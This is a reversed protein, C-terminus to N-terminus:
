NSGFFEAEQNATQFKKQYSKQQILLISLQLEKCSLPGKEVNKHM